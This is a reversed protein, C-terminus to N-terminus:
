PGSCPGPGGRFSCDIAAAVDLMDYVGDCNWDAQNPSIAPPPGGRLVFNILLVVDRLDVAHNGDFDGRAAWHFEFVYLGHEMNAGYVYRGDFAAGWFGLLDGPHTYEDVVYSNGVADADIAWVGCTHHAAMVVGPVRDNGSLFHLPDRTCWYQSSLIHADAPDSLDIVHLVSSPFQSHLDVVYARRNADVWLSHCTTGPIAVQGIWVPSAPNSVDVIQLGAEWYALYVIHDRVFIDHIHAGVVSGAQPYLWSGVSEPEAPNAVNIIELQRGGYSGAFLLTDALFLAPCDTMGPHGFTGVVQPSDPNAVNVILVADGSYIGQGPSLGLYVLTDKIQVDPTFSQTVITSRLQPNAPNSVDILYAANNASGLVALHGDVAVDCRYNPSPVDVQGVSDLHGFVMPQAIAGSAMLMSSAVLLV